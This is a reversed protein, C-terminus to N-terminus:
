RAARPMAGQEVVYRYGSQVVFKQTTMSRDPWRIRVEAECSKGLGFHLVRDNQTGGVGHGGGVEQTQTGGATVVTVRAGIASRNSGAAGVLDLQIWNGAKAVVNEFFRVTAAPYCHDGAGCRTRGHGVALDLAGDRNFDAVVVGHSSRHDIGDSLSVEQFTGDAKQWFLHGRTGPYDSSGIYLDLRGDNDFDFAAATMDGDNWDLRDHVRELGTAQNGPRSFVVDKSGDNVLIESQDGSRGVDWHTIETTVLDMRGDNNLDACVTTGSNGGLRYPNRDYTHNWRVVHSPQTCQIRQPPPIGACDQATPNLTCYCRASENDSWDQHGDFAYGSAISRNAFALGGGPIAQWLHNPARGYSSVLLDQWGDGNVDCAVVGWANSHARAEDLDALLQWDKTLLGAEETIDTFGGKGDGRYLQDQAAPANKTGGNGVFLDVKGDRDVDVFAAAARVVEEGERRIPSSEPGLRFNGKGDNLLLESSELQPSGTPDPNRIGTFVDVFGDNDVDAFIALPAPRGKRGEASRRPAVIGSAETVDQFAKGADNRLLWSVRTGGDAFDDGETLSGRVFLDPYGDGDVDAVSLLTGVAGVANWEGTVERFISTGPTWASGSKCMSPLADRCRNAIPDCSQEDTCVESGCRDGEPTGACAAILIPFFVAIRARM